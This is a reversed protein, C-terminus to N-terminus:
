ILNNLLNEVWFVCILESMMQVAVQWYQGGMGPCQKPWCRGGGDELFNINKSSNPKRKAVRPISVTSRNMIQPSRLEGPVEGSLISSSRASSSWEVENACSALEGVRCSECCMRDDKSSRMIVGDGEFSIEVVETTLKCSIDSWSKVIASMDVNSYTEGCFTGFDPYLFYWDPSM